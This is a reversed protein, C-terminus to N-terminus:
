QVSNLFNSQTDLFNSSIFYFLTLTIKIYLLKVENEARWSIKASHQYLTQKYSTRQWHKAKCNRYKTCSRPNRPKFEFGLKAVYRFISSWSTEASLNAPLAFALHFLRDFDRKTDIRIKTSILNKELIKKTHSDRGPGWSYWPLFALRAIRAALNQAAFRDNRPRSSTALSAFFM